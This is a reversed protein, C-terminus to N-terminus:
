TEAERADMRAMHRKISEELPDYFIKDALKQAPPSYCCTYFIFVFVGLALILLVIM